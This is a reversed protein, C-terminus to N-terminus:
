SKLQGTEYNQTYGKIQVFLVISIIIVIYKSFNNM